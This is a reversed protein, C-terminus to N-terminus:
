LGQRFRIVPAIKAAYILQLRLTCIELHLPARIKSNGYKGTKLNYLFLRACHRRLLYCDIGEGTGLGEGVGEGGGGVSVM